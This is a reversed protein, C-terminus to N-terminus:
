PRAEGTLPAAPAICPEVVGLARTEGAEERLKGRRRAIEAAAKARKAGAAAPVRLAIPLFSDASAGEHRLTVLADADAGRQVLALAGDFFPYETAAVLMEGAETMAAWKLRLGSRDPRESLLPWPLRRAIIRIIRPAKM